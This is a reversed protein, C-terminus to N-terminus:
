ETLWKVFSQAAKGNVFFMVDNLNPLDEPKSKPVDEWTVVAEERSTLSNQKQLKMGDYLEWVNTCGLEVTGSSNKRKGKGATQSTLHLDLKNEKLVIVLPTNYRNACIRCIQEISYGQKYYDEMEQATPTYAKLGMSDLMLTVTETSLYSSVVDHYERRLDIDNILNVYVAFDEGDYDRVSTSTTTRSSAVGVSGPSLMTREEVQSESEKIKNDFEKTYRCANIVCVASMKKGQSADDQPVDSETSVASSVNPFLLLCIGIGAILPFFRKM